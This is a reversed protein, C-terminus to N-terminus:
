FTLKLIVICRQLNFYERFVRWNNRRSCQDGEVASSGRGANVHPLSMAANSGLQTFSQVLTLATPHVINLTLLLLNRLKVVLWSWHMVRIILLAKDQQFICSADAISGIHWYRMWWRNKEDGDVTIPRGDKVYFRHGIWLINQWEDPLM